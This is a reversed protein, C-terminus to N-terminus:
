AALQIDSEVENGWVDWWPHEKRAFLEIRNYDNGAYLKEIDKRFAEPKESHRGRQHLQTNYIGANTRPIGKGKTALLCIEANARTHRGMGMYIGGDQNTKVWTFACTKYKFGWARIVEFSVELMPMTVWMFLVANDDALEKVPLSCLESISMCPYHSEAGGGHSKSKDQYKWPPDAYIIQYKKM